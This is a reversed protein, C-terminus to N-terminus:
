RKPSSPSCSVSTRPMRNVEHPKIFSVSSIFPTKSFLIELDILYYNVRVKAVNIYDIHVTKNQTDITFDMQPEMKVQKRKREQETDEFNDFKVEEKGGAPKYSEDIEKLQESIEKFLNRWSPM